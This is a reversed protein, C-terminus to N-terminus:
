NTMGAFASIWRRRWFHIIATTRVFETVKGWGATGRLTNRAPCQVRQRSRLTRRGGRRQLQQKGGWGGSLRALGVRPLSGVLRISLAVPTLDRM